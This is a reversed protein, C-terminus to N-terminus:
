ILFKGVTLPTVSLRKLVTQKKYDLLAYCSTYIGMQMISYAIVGPLLFDTYEIESEFLLVHEVRLFSLILFISLPLLVVFFFARRNRFFMKLFTLILQKM